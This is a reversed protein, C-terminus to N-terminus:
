ICIFMQENELLVFISFWHFDLCDFWVISDPWNNSLHCSPLQNGTTIAKDQSECERLSKMWVNLRSYFRVKRQFFLLNQKYNWKKKRNYVFFLVFCQLHCMKVSPVIFLYMSSMELLPNRRTNAQVVWVVAISHFKYSSYKIRVIDYDYIVLHVLVVCWYCMEYTNNFLCSLFLVCFSLTFFCAVIRQKYILRVICVGVCVVCAYLCM